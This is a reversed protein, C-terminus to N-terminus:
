MQERSSPSHREILLICPVPSTQGPFAGSTRSLKMVLWGLKGLLSKSETVPFTRPLGPPTAWGQWGSLWCKIQSFYPLPGRSGRLEPGGHDSCRQSRPPQASHTGTRARHGHALAETKMDTFLLASLCKGLLDCQIITSTSPGWPSRQRTAAPMRTIKVGTRM